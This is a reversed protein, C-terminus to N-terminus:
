LHQRRGSQRRRRWRRGQVIHPFDGAENALGTNDSTLGGPTVGALTISGDLATNDGFDGVSQNLIGDDAIDARAETLNTYFDTLDIFDNNTPDGDGLAGTNGFNFDSITDDGNGAMYIFLDDEDGGTLFDDDEGGDITDACDGGVITDDGAGGLLSDNGEGGDISDAGLGGAITDLGAGADVNVGGTSNTADITDDGSGTAVAEIESFGACDGGPNTVTGSEDDAFTVTVDETLADGDLIDGNTENTEGGVIMDNGFGDTIQLLDDGGGGTISDAGAGGNVTDAGEGAALTDDGLGGSMTDDGAGSDVNIGGTSASGDFTDAGSGTEVAEVETFTATDGGPNTVTGSEDDNNFTVTVAETLAGGAM